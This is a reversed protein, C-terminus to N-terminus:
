QARSARTSGSTTYVVPGVVLLVLGLLKYQLPGGLFHSGSSDVALMSSPLLIFLFGFIIVHLTTLRRSKMPLTALLGLAFVVLLADGVNYNLLFSDIVQLPPAFM